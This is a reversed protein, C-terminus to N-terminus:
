GAHCKVSLETLAAALDDIPIVGGLSQKQSTVKVSLEHATQWPGTAPRVAEPPLLLQGGPPVISAAFRWVQGSACLSSSTPAMIGAELMIGALDLDSRTVDATHSVSIADPGGQPNPARLLRWGGAIATTSEAALLMAPQLVFSAALCLGVLLDRLIKRLL